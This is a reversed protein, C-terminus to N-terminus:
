VTNAISLSHVVLFSFLMIIGVNLFWHWISVNLLEVGFWLGVRGSLYGVYRVYGLINGYVFVKVDNSDSQCSDQRQDEWAALIERGVSLQCANDADLLRRRDEEFDVALLFHCDIESELRHLDNLSCTLRVYEQECSRLTVNTSNRIVSIPEYTDDVPAFGDIRQWLSGARVTVSVSRPIHSKLTKVTTDAIGETKIAVKDSKLLYYTGDM